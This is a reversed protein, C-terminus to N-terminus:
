IEGSPGRVPRHYPTSAPQAEGPPPELWWPTITPATGHIRDLARDLRRADRDDSRSWASVFGVILVIATVDGFAWLLAGGTHVDSLIEAPTRGLGLFYDGAFLRHSLMIPLGLLVHLPAMGVVLFFRFVFPPRHPVPDIGLVSWYYLFGVAVFHAHTLTDLWPHRLTAEFLPTYYFVFLNIAFIAFAIAPHGIVRAPRSHVVALLIRRAPRPLTRLALTIPTALALLTPAIMQLLMHQVASVSFVTAAYIQTVSTTAIGIVALGAIAAAVRRTMWRDGRRRLRRVGVLYLGLVALLVVTTSPHPTWSTLVRWPTLPPLGGVDIRSPLSSPAPVPM